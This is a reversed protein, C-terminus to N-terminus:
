GEGCAADLVRKGKAFRRVFAYRHWHEYAIEGPTGPVYREGDFELDANM